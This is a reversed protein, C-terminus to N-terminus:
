CVDSFDYDIRDTLVEKIIYERMIQSVKKFHNLYSKRREESRWTTSETDRIIKSLEERTIVEQNTRYQDPRLYKVEDNQLIIYEVKPQFNDEKYFPTEISELIHYWIGRIYM